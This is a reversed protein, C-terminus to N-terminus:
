IVQLLWFLHGTSLSELASVPVLSANSRASIVLAEFALRSPIRYWVGV